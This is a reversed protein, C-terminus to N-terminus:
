DTEIDSQEIPKARFVGNPQIFRVEEVASPDREDLVFEVFFGNLGRIGFRTNQAPQLEYTPQGPLTLMLTTGKLRFEATQDALSYYGTLHSLFGPDSLRRDPQRTFVIDNVSPELPVAVQHIDGSSNTRFNFKIRQDDLEPFLAMFVDYHWHELKARLNNYEAYLRKDEYTVALTGYGPEGYEGAYERLHHSPKTGDVRDLQEQAQRADDIVEEGAEFRAMIRAHYDVPELELFVDAIRHCIIGPLPTGDLNCLIVIGLGDDPYLSVLASFGDINGGHHVRRHGRYAEVFWGLGYSTYLAETYQEPRSIAMQPTHMEEILATPLLQKGEGNKGGSLHFHIWRNMEVVCSNISGAPGMTSINRYEILRVTDEHRRYPSAHDASKSMRAVSFNTRPMKLPDLLREQVVDEWHERVIQGTVYGATMYMLNQYQFSTRFDKSPELYQLRNVLDTRTAGSNYWMADHRPLGSRHTVLDRLTIREGAFLDKMRFRPLYTRVPEDWDLHGDAVLTAIAATTFSKTASGIAFLTYRTVPLSDARNRVGFGEAMVVHGDYVIGIAAGPAKWEPMISDVFVRVRDLRDHLSSKEALITVEDQRRIAFPWSSAGQHFDGSITRGDHSFSGDFYPDGPVGPMEFHVKGGDVVINGLPVDEAGQVAIDIDGTWEVTDSPRFEVVIGLSTGSVKIDGEWIGTLEIRDPPDAALAPAVPAFFAVVVIVAISLGTMLRSM